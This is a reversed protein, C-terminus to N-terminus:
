GGVLEDGVLFKNNLFFPVPFSTPLSEVLFESTIEPFTLEMSLNATPEDAM